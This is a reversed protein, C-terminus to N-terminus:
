STSSPRMVEEVVTKHDVKFSHFQELIRYRLLPIKEMHELMEQIDERLEENIEAPEPEPVPKTQVKEKEKYIMEGRNCILWDLSVGLTTAIKYYNWLDPSTRGAENRYYTTQGANIARAMKVRSYNLSARIRKLKSAIEKVLENRNM